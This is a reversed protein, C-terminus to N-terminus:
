DLKFQALYGEDRVAAGGPQEDKLLLFRELVLADMNTGMFCRYAHM